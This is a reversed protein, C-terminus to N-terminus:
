RASGNKKKDPPLINYNDRFCLFIFIATYLTIWSTSASSL